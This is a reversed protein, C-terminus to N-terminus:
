GVDDLVIIWRTALQARAAPHNLETQGGPMGLLSSYGRPFHKIAEDLAAIAAAL